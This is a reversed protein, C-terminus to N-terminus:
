ALICIIKQTGVLCKPTRSPGLLTFPLYAMDKSHGIMMGSLKIKRMMTLGAELVKRVHFEAHMYVFVTHIHVGLPPERNLTVVFKDSCVVIQLEANRFLLTM